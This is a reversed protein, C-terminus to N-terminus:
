VAVDAPAVTISPVAGKELKIFNIKTTPTKQTGVKTGREPNPEAAQIGFNLQNEVFKKDKSAVAVSITTDTTRSAAFGGIKGLTTKVSPSQETLSAQPIPVSLKKFTNIKETPKEKSPVEESQVVPTYKATDEASKSNATNATKLEDALKKADDLDRQRGDIYGAVGGVVAGALCGKAAGAGTVYGLVAGGACGVTAGVTAGGGAKSMGTKQAIDDGAQQVTACGTFLLGVAVAILTKKM